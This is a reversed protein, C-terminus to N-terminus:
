KPNMKLKKEKCQLWSDVIQKRLVKALKLIKIQKFRNCWESVVNLRKKINGM